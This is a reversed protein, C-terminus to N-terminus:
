SINDKLSLQIRKRQIDIEIVKVSVHQHMSIVDNPNTIFENKNKTFYALITQLIELKQSKEM